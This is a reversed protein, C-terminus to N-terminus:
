AGSPVTEWRSPRPTSDDAARKRKEACLRMMDDVEPLFSDSSRDLDLNLAFANEGPMGFKERNKKFAGTGFKEGPFKIEPIALKIKPVQPREAFAFNNVSKEYVDGYYQSLAPAASSVEGFSGGSSM